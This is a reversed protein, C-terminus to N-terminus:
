HSSIDSFTSNKRPVSLIWKLGSWRTETPNQGNQLIIWLLEQMKSFKQFISIGLLIPTSYAAYGLFAGFIKKPSLRWQQLYSAWFASFRWKGLDKSFKWKWIKLTEMHAFESLIEFIHNMKFDSRERLFHVKELMPEPSKIEIARM